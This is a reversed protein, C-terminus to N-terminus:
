TKEDWGGMKWPTATNVGPKGPEGFINCTKGWPEKLTRESNKWEFDKSTKPDSNCWGRRQLDCLICSIARFGCKGPIMCCGWCWTKSWTRQPARGTPYRFATFALSHAVNARTATEVYWKRIMKTDNESANRWTRDNATGHRATGWV